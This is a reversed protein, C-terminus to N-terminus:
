EQALALNNNKGLFGGSRRWRVARGLEIRKQGGYVTRFARARTWHRIAGSLLIQMHSDAGDSILAAYVGHCLDLM